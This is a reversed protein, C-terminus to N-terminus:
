QGDGTGGVQTTATARRSIRAHQEAFRSVMREGEEGDFRELHRRTEVRIYDSMSLREADLLNAKLSRLASGGREGLRHAFARMEDAFRDAPFVANLYRMEVLEAATLKRPLFSLDRALAGGLHRQLSWVMGLESALGLELFSTAFRADDAAIRLDCASAWAMGAGACAGNVAAVTVQPMEHLLRASEYAHPPPHPERAGGDRARELDAGPCFARGNGTLVVVDVDSTESLALLVEYMEIVMQRVVGNHHDARDFRVYAVNGERRTQLTSM